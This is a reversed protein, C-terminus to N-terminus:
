RNYVGKTLALHVNVDHVQVVLGTLEVDTGEACELVVNSFTDWAYEDVAPVSEASAADLLQVVFVSYSAGNASFQDLLKFAGLSEWQIDVDEIFDDFLIWNEALSGEVELVLIFLSETLLEALLMWLTDLVEVARIVQRDETSFADFWQVAVVIAEDHVQIFDLTHPLKLLLVNDLICVLSAFSVLRNM